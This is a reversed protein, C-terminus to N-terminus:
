RRLAGTDRDIVKGSLAAARKVDITGAAVGSQTPTSGTYLFTTQAGTTTVISRDLSPATVVAQKVAGVREKVGVDASSRCGLVVATTGLLWWAAKMNGM